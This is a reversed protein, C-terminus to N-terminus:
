RVVDLNREYQAALSMNDGLVIDSNGDISFQVKSVGSLEALSDVISYLTLEQRIGDAPIIFDASLNVYCIGDKVTVNIIETQPNITGRLGEIDTGAILQEVVLKEVSINTNYEVNKVTKILREGDSDAYYLTLDISDYSNIEDGANDIFQAMNMPGVTQGLADKLEEENIKFSIYDIGSIQGLTRVIAARTLVEKAPPLLEYAESLTIYLQRDGFSVSTVEFDKIVEKYKVNESERHLESILEYTLAEGDSTDTTYERSILKNEDRDLCYINYLTEGKDGADSGKGCGTYVVASLVLIMISCISKKIM